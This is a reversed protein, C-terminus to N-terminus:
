FVIRGVPMRTEVVGERYDFVIDPAPMPWLWIVLMATVFILIAIKDM